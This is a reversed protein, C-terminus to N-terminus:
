NSKVWENKLLALREHKLNEQNDKVTFVFSGGKEAIKEVIKKQAFIADGTITKGKIDITELM